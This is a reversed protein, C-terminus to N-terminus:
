VDGEWRLAHPEQFEPRGRGPKLGPPEASDARFGHTTGPCLSPNPVFARAGTRPAHSGGWCPSGRRPQATPRAPTKPNGNHPPAARRVLQPRTPQFRPPTASWYPQSKAGQFPRTQGPRGTQDPRMSRWDRGSARNAAVGLLGHLAGRPIRLTMTRSSAGALAHEVGAPHWTPALRAVEERM